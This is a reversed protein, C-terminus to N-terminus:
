AGRRFTFCHNEIVIVDCVTLIMNLIRQQTKLHKLEMEIQIWHQTAAEDEERHQEGGRCNWTPTFPAPCTFLIPSFRDPQRNHYYRTLPPFIGKTFGFCMRLSHERSQPSPDAGHINKGSYFTYQGAADADPSSGATGRVPLGQLPHHPWRLFDGPARKRGDLVAIFRQRVLTWLMLLSVEWGWMSQEICHLINYIKM